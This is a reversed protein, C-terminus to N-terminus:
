WLMNCYQGALELYLTSALHIRSDSIDCAYLHSVKEFAETLPGNSLELCDPCLAESYFGVVVRDACVAASFCLTLIFLENLSAMKSAIRSVTSLHIYKSREM